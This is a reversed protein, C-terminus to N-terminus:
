DPVTEVGLLSALGRGVHWCSYGTEQKGQGIKVCYGLRGKVVTDPEYLVM